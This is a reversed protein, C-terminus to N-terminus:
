SKPGHQTMPSAWRDDGAAANWNTGDREYVIRVQGVSADHPFAYKLADIVLETVVLRLLRCHGRRCQRETRNSARRDSEGGSKVAM